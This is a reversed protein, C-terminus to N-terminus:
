QSARVVATARVGVRGGGTSVEGISVGAAFRSTRAKPFRISQHDCSFRTCTNRIRHLMIILHGAPAGAPHSRELNRWPTRHKVAPALPEYWTRPGNAWSLSTASTFSTRKLIFFLPLGDARCSSPKPIKEFEFGPGCVLSLHTSPYPPLLLVIFQLSSRNNKM